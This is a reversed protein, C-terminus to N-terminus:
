RGYVPLNTKYSDDAVMCKSMLPIPSVSWQNNQECSHDSLYIYLNLLACIRGFRVAVNNNFFSTYHLLFSKKLKTKHNGWLYILANNCRLVLHKNQLISLHNIRMGDFTLGQAVSEENRAPPKPFIFKENFNVFFLLLIYLSEESKSNCPDMAVFPWGFPVRSGHGMILLGLLEWCIDQLNPLLSM